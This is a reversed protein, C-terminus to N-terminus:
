ALSGEHNNQARVSIEMSNIAQINSPLGALYVKPPESLVIDYYQSARKVLFGTHDTDDDILYFVHLM